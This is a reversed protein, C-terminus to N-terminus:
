DSHKSKVRTSGHSWHQGTHGTSSRTTNVEGRSQRRRHVVFWSGRAVPWARQRTTSGQTQGLLPRTIRLMVEGRKATQRALFKKAAQLPRTTDVASAQGCPGCSDGRRWAHSAVSCSHLALPVYSSLLCPWRHACPMACPMARRLLSLSVSLLLSLTAVGQM